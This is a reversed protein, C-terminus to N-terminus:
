FPIDNATQEEPQETSDQNELKPSLFMVDDTNLELSAQPKGSKDVYANASVQGRVRIRQGKKIFGTVSEAREGWITVNFWTTRKQAQGNSKWKDNCAVSFKCVARGQPTYSMEADRGINGTVDTEHTRM